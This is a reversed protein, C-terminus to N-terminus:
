FHTLHHDIPARKCTKGGKINRLEDVSIEMPDIVVILKQHKESLFMEGTGNEWWDKNVSFTALIDNIVRQGLNRKGKELAPIINQNTDLKKAFEEQTLGLAKRIAKVKEGKSAQPIQQTTM